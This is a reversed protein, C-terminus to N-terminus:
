DDDLIRKVFKKDYNKLSNLKNFTAETDDIVVYNEIDFM